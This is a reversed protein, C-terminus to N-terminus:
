RRESWEAMTVETLTVITKEVSCDISDMMGLKFRRDDVGVKEAIADFLLKDLNVTDKKLWTKKKTLWPYYYTRDVRVISTEAVRFAPIYVKSNTKWQRCEPRLTVRDAPNPASFRVQYLSNVSPPCLPLTFTITNM